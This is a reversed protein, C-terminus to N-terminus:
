TRNIANFYIRWLLSFRFHISAMQKEHKWEFMIYTIYTRVLESPETNTDIEWLYLCWLPLAGFMCQVAAHSTIVSNNQAGTASAWLDMVCTSSHRACAYQSLLHFFAGYIIPNCVGYVSRLERWSVNMTDNPRPFTIM